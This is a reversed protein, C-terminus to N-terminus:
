VKFIGSKPSLNKESQLKKISMKGSLLMSLMSLTCIHSTEKTSSSARPVYMSASCGCGCGCGVSCGAVLGVLQSSWGFSGHSYQPPFKISYGLKMDMNTFFRRVTGHVFHEIESVILSTRSLSTSAHTACIHPNAPSTVSNSSTGSLAEGHHFLCHDNGAPLIHVM